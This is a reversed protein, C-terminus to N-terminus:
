LVNLQINMGGQMEVTEKPKGITQNVLYEVAKSDPKERYVDIIEETGDKNIKKRGLYVGQALELEKEFLMEANEAVKNVWFERLKEVAVAKYGKTRGGLKNGKQFPM